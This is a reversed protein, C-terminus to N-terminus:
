KDHLKKGHSDNSNPDMNTDGIPLHGRRQMIVDEQLCHPAEM